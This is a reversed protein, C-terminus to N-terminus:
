SVVQNEKFRLMVIFGISAIADESAMKADAGIKASSAFGVPMTM